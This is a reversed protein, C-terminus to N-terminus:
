RIRLALWLIASLLAFLSGSALAGPWGLWHVLVPMLATSVVGGLNGAMNMLGGSAGANPGALAIATSWFPGETSFLFAVSLSIAAVAVWAAPAWAGLFLLTGSGILCGMAVFRRGSLRDFRKSLHDSLYGFAPVALTALAFPLSSAWGGSILKFKRVDVLYKFLWFVFIFLVYSDLFYSLCLFVMDRNKLLRWWPESAADPTEVSSSHKPARRWWLAVIVLPVLATWYFSARWGNRQMLNAILPPTFAAGLTSGAIVLANSFAHTSVPLWNAIAKAAVPYTAAEGVGLLFRLFLLSLFSAAAGKALIGPVLGTLLTTLSCGLGAASLVLRPGFRDGWVGAPLQFLAYGLMFASFVQGIQVDSLRLEPAMYQQAVSINMRLLYSAFAFGSLLPLLRAAPLAPADRLRKRGKGTQPQM